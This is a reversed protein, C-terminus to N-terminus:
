KKNKKIRNYFNKKWLYPNIHKWLNEGEIFSPKQKELIKEFKTKIERYNTPNDNAFDKSNIIESFYNKLPGRLWDTMPSNFGIKTKRYAIKQPVFPALADRVISKTYGNRVKSTWPLSFAFSVIRYDLFPMRIEIGNIMSYRDYNRLLTPLVTEHTSIYLKQTFYDLRSWQPHNMDRSINKKNLIIKAINKVIEKLLFIFPNALPFQNNTIQSDYYTKIVSWIKKPHFLEDHIIHLYDFSYGGFLEDAGHGDLTVVVGKERMAKYTAIFPIPPTIYLEEFLYLYEDLETLYDLPNINIIELPINTKQAVEKAYEVEDIPTEPFSATFAYQGKSNIREEGGKKSINSMVSAVGSSDLGGSLATGIKVDSRMRIRCADIFLERFKQVQQEYSLDCKEIHDLTNWFRKIELFGNKYYGFSGAPFRKIEKILCQETAEYYFIKNLNNLIEENPTLEELLPIIAKMESAFVFHRNTQTYFLPKIGLRDRSLFLSQDKKDWIGFAWMGNFRDLCKEKWEAFAALIVETDSDSIFKYGIKELDKRIEIFNYIEGNFTITYRGNAFSMPQAGRPSLDLIALRRHGLTIEEETWLGFGDPGRHTMKNLCEEALTRDIKEGQIGLIGCM